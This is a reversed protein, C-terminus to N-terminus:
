ALYGAAQEIALPLHGLEACLEVGGDMNRSGTANVIRALLELAEVATLADLRIVNPVQHWVTALRSTIVFRGAAPRALLPAIDAPDNVNDLIVLWGSHTALWQLAREALAQAPLVDTLEPQL